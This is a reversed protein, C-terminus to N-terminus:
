WSQALLGAGSVKPAPAKPRQPLLCTLKRTFRVRQPPSVSAGRGAEGRQPSSITGGSPPPSLTPGPTRRPHHDPSPYRPAIVIALLLGHIAPRLRRTKRPSSARPKPPVATPHEVASSGPSPGASPGSSPPCSSAAFPACATFSGAFGPATTAVTSTMTTPAPAEPSAAACRRCCAPRRTSTSSARSRTPPRTCVLRAQGSSGTSMPAEHIWPEAPFGIVASALRKPARVTAVSSSAARTTSAPPRRRDSLRRASM